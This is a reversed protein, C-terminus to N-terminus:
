LKLIKKSFVEYAKENLHLGDTTYEDKLFENSSLEENLDIYTYNNENLYKELLINFEKVKKNYPLMQTYLLKIVIVEIKNRKLKKLLSLYKTFVEDVSCFSSFDNIGILLVIKEPKKNLIFPLRAKVGEITDGDLGYNEIELKKLYKNWKSRAILSDGVFAIM